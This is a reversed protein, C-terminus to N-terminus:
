AQLGRLYNVIQNADWNVGAQPNFIGDAVWDNWMGILQVETLVSAPIFGGRINLLTAAFEQSIPEPKKTTNGNDAEGLVDRLTKGARNSKTGKQFVDKFKPNGGPYQNAAIGAWYSVTRGNCLPPTGHHSMNGSAAASPSVCNTALVPRSALTLIASVGLGSLRRRSRDIAADQPQDLSAPQNEPSNQQNESM